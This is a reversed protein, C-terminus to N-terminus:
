QGEPVSILKLFVETIIYCIFINQSSLCVIISMNEDSKKPIAMNYIKDYKSLSRGMLHPVLRDTLFKMEVFFLKVNYKYIFKIMQYYLLTMVKYYFRNKHQKAVLM